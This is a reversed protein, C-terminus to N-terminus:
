DNMMDQSDAANFGDFDDGSDDYSNSEDKLGANQAMQQEIVVV